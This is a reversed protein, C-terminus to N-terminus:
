GNDGEREVTKALKVRAADRNDIAERLRGLTADRERLAAILERIKAVGEDGPGWLATLDHCENEIEAIREPTM